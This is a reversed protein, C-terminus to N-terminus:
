RGGLPRRRRHPTRGAGQPRPGQVLLALAAHRLAQIAADLDDALEGSDAEPDLGIGMRARMLEQAAAHLSAAGGTVPGEGPTSPPATRVHIAGAFAPASVVPAHMSELARSVLGEPDGGGDSCA